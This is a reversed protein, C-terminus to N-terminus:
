SLSARRGADSSREIRELLALLIAGDPSRGGYRLGHYAATFQRVLDALASPPLTAAFEAPTLWPPKRFGRRSLEGLMRRYILTADSAQADDRQLQRLRRRARWWRALPVGFIVALAACTAWLLAAIGYRRVWELAGRRGRDFESGLADLWRAGFSRGSREVRSALALQRTLDYSLIWDQWFTEAADLYFALRALASLRRPSPDPPTPDFTTWGGAPLYAEVWSHADSARVVYWGSVPNYVGSQFGNVLRSPIGIARLLLAMASAFYECHGQRREFLFHAIPDPSAREPLQTTYAYHTRLYSEITRASAEASTFGETLRRALEGIRPDLPPLDLCCELVEAPVPRRPLHRAATEDPLFAHVGYRLTDSQIAGPRLSDNPGRIVVPVNIWLLEPLGAFFLADAVTASLLVEYSLRQGPRWREGGLTLLRDRVPLVQRPEPPNFWRKGDFRSLAVGRWKLELRRPPGLIRVRMVARHNQRIQGIEGLTVENSFGPLQFRDPVLRRFAAQATRPLVFFLSATLLLIGAGLVASLAALRWGLRAPVHRAVPASRKLCRRIEAGTFTAVAFVLFLVLFAFFNLSASLLAALLLQLFAIIVLLGYDRSTRATLICVFAVFFVLHVTAGLFDRSVWRWDLPYFGIYAIIAATVWRSPIELRVLGVIMLARLLLGAGGLLVRPLDPYGSGVVALYGGALMGLLSFQFFPEIAATAALAGPRARRVM